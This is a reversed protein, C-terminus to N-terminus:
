GSYFMVGELGMEQKRFGTFRVSRNTFSLGDGIHGRKQSKPVGPMVCWLKLVGSGHGSLTVRM